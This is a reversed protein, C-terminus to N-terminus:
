RLATWQAQGYKEEALQGSMAQEAGSLGGRQLTIGLAPGFAAAVADRVEDWSASRGLAAEVSTVCGALTRVLRDRAEASPTRLVAALREPSFRLLISGHQLLVGNKRVQASGVLKRGEHMIEYHAPADFCASSSHPQRRKEQAYASRPLSLQAAIGLQALGALIGGSFYRYSATVTAPVNPADERVVLSYTLEAEHLVARGGTLRRVVTIGLEQCANTDLEAEAQQFYGLSVAAPRGGYLRLTPPSEGAAHSRLLAEDIAMNVAADQFGTDLVRWNM